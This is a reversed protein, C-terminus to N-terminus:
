RRMSACDPANSSVPNRGHSGSSMMGSRSPLRTTTNRSLQAPNTSKEAGSAEVFRIAVPTWRHSNFPRLGVRTTFTCVLQSEGAVGLAKGIATEPVAVPRGMRRVHRRSRTCHRDQGDATVEPRRRLANREDTYFWTEPLATSRRQVRAPGFEKRREGGGLGSGAAHSAGRDGPPAM